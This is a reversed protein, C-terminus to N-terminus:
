VTALIRRFNGTERVDINPEFTVADCDAGGFSVEANNNINKMMYNNASATM